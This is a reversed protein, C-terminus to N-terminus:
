VSLGSLSVSLWVSRSFFCCSNSLHQYSIDPDHIKFIFTTASLSWFLHFRSMTHNGAMTSFLILRPLRPTKKWRTEIEWCFSIHKEYYVKRDNRNLRDQVYMHIVIGLDEAFNNFTKRSTFFIMLTFIKTSLFKQM